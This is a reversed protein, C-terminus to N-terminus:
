RGTNLVDGCNGVARQAVAERQAVGGSQDIFRVMYRVHVSKAAYGLLVHTFDIWVPDHAVIKCCDPNLRRFEGRDAYYVPKEPRFTTYGGDPTEIVHRGMALVDDIAADIAEEDPLFRLSGFCFGSFSLTAIGVIIAGVILLYKTWNPV